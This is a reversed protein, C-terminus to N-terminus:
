WKVLIVSTTMLVAGAVGLGPHSSLGNNEALFVSAACGIMGALGILRHQVRQSSIMTLDLAPFGYSVFGSLVTVAALATTGKAAKCHFSHSSKSVGTLLGAGLTAYGSYKHIGRLSFPKGKKEGRFLFLSREYGNGAYNQQKKETLANFPIMQKQSYSLQLMSSRQSGSYKAMDERTHEHVPLPVNGAAPFSSFGLVFLAIFYVKLVFIQQNM